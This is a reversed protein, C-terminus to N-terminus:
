YTIQLKRDPMISDARDRTSDDVDEAALPDSVSPAIGLIASSRFLASSRRSILLSHRTAVPSTGPSGFSPSVARSRAVGARSASYSSEPQFTHPLIRSLRDSPKVKAHYRIAMVTGSGIAATGSAPERTHNSVFM